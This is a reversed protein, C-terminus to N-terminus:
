KGAAFENTSAGWQESAPAGDEVLLDEGHGVPRTDAHGPTSSRGKEVRSAGKAGRGFGSPSV